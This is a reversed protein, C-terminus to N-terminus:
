QKMYEDLSLSTDPSRRSPSIQQECVRLLLVDVLKDGRQKALAQVHPLTSEALKSSDLPILMRKYM